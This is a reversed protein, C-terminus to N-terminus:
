KAPYKITVLDPFGDVGDSSGTVYVNRAADVGIAVTSDTGIASGNYHEAWVEVGNTDYMITTIDDSGATWNAYGTVYVNGNSDVAIGVPQDDGPGPASFLKAWKQVGANTYKVTAYQTKTKSADVSRGTVFINGLSDLAIGVPVDDKNATGNYRKVWVQTGDSKYKITAYDYGASSSYSTGTVYVNKASDVRMAVPQNWDGPGDYHAEWDQNGNLDYKITVYRATSDGTSSLGTVYVNGDADVAIASPMDDRNAAGNYRKVWLPNGAPDYKITAFDYDGGTGVSQGTVYVNKQGDVAIALAEDDGNKPGNYRKAWLLNGAPDYKATAFDYGTGFGAWRGTVCVNGGVDLVIASPVDPSLGPGQGFKAWNMTGATDYKVTLWDIGSKSNWTIGAIYVDGASDVAMATPINFGNTSAFRKAWLVAGTKDYKITAFDDGTATSTNSHSRGTVCVSGDSGNIAVATPLDSETGANNYLRAWIQNGGNDYKVTAFQSYAASSPCSGVVYVSGDTKDLVIGVPTDNLNSPGNYREVWKQTGTAPDYKVTAFDYNLGAGLSYGTVYVGNGSDVCIATAVDYGNGPGNYRAVWKQAGNPGYKVTAFDYSKAGVSQGTVYINGDLDLAIANAQDSAHAPGDYRKVWLQTGTADYAITAYDFGTTSGQSYGTVYIKSNYQDVVIATPYDRGNGPGNYRKAWQQKGTSDFKVTMYDTMTTGGLGPVVGTLYLSGESDLAVGTANCFGKDPCAYTAQFQTNGDPGYKVVLFSYKNTTTQGLNGAVYINGASDLTIAYAASTEGSTMNSNYYSTWLQAGSKNYKVLTMLSTSNPMFGTSFGAIYVNGATDVATAAPYDMVPAARTYRKIWQPPNTQSNPGALIQPANVQEAASECFGMGLPIFFWLLICIVLLRIKRLM